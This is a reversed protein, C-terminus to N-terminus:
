RNQPDPTKKLLAGAILSILLGVPFVELFTVGIQVFPNKYLEKFSEMEAIQAAVEEESQGSNKLNEVAQEYYSEMFDSDSTNMYTIWGATYIISAVLTILLGTKFGSGLTINGAGEKDRQSKIGVFITPALALIMTLYGLVEAMEFSIENGMFPLTALMLVVLILGSIGGLILVNKKM